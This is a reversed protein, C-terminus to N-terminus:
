VYAPLYTFSVSGASVTITQSGPDLQFPDDKSWKLASSVDSSDSVKTARRTRMDVTVGGTPVTGVYRFSYGNTSNAVVPSAAGASLTATIARTPSDGVITVTGAAGIAQSAGLWPGDLTEVPILLQCLYATVWREAVGHTIATQTADLLGATTLKRRTVTQAIGPKVLAKVAAVAAETGAGSAGRVAVQATRLQAAVPRRTASAGPVGAYVPLDGRVDASSWFESLDQITCASALDTGGFLLTGIM